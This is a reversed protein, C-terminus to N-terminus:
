VQRVALVALVSAVPEDGLQAVPAAAGALVVSVAAGALVVSVALEGLELAAARLVLM